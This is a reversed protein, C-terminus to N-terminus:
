LPGKKKSIALQSDYYKNLFHYLVLEHKRQNALLMRNLFMHIYSPLLFDAPLDTPLISRIRTSREAFLDIAECIGNEEDQRPDLFSSFQRM